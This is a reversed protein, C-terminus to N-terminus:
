NKKSAKQIESIKGTLDDVQKKLEEARTRHQAARAQAEAARPKDKKREIAERDAADAQQQEHQAFKIMAIKKQVYPILAAPSISIAQDYYGIAKELEAPIAQAKAARAGGRTSYIEGLWQLSVDDNPDIKVAEAFYKEAKEPHRTEVYMGAITRYRDAKAKPDSHESARVLAAAAEDTNGAKMYAAAKKEWLKDQNPNIELALGFEKAAAEFNGQEYLQDGKKNHVVAPDPKKCAATVILTAFGLAIGRRLKM